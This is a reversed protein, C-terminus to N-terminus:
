PNLAVMTGLGWTKRDMTKFTMLKMLEPADNGRHFKVILRMLIASCFFSLKAEKKTRLTTTLKAAKDHNQDKM